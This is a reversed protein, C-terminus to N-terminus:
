SDFLGFLRKRWSSRRPGSEGVDWSGDALRVARRQSGIIGTVAGANHHLVVLLDPRLWHQGRSEGFGVVLALDEPAGGIVKVGTVSPTTFGYVTGELGALGAAATEPTSRVQVQDGFQISPEADM